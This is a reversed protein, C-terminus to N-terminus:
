RHKIKKKSSSKHSATFFKLVTCSYCSATQTVTALSYPFDHSQSHSIFIQQTLWQFKWSQENSCCLVTTNSYSGFIIVYVLFKFYACLSDWILSHINTIICLYSTIFPWMSSISIINLIITLILRLSPICLPFHICYNFFQNILQLILDLFVGLLCCVTHISFSPFFNFCFLVFSPCYLHNIIM